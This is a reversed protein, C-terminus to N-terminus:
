TYIYLIPHIHHLLHISSSAQKSWSKNKSNRDPQRTRCQLSFAVSLITDGKREKKVLAARKSIYLLWGGQENNKAKKSEMGKHWESGLGGVM